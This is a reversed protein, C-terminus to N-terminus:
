CYRGGVWPAKGSGNYLLRGARLNARPWAWDAPTYGAAYFLGNHLPLMMQLLGSAGSPNRANPRWGSERGIVCFLWGMQGTSGWEQWAVQEICGRDGLAACYDLFARSDFAAPPKPKHANMYAQQRQKVSLCGAFLLASAVVLVLM